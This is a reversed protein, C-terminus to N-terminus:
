VCISPSFKCFLFIRLGAGLKLIEGGFAFAPKGPKEGGHGLWVGKM